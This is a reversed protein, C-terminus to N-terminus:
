PMKTKLLAIFKNVLTSLKDEENTDKEHLEHKEMFEKRYNDVVEKRGWGEGKWWTRLKGYEGIMENVYWPKAFKLSRDNIIKVLDTTNFTKKIVSTFYPEYDEPIDQDDRKRLYFERLVNSIRLENGTIKNKRARLTMAYYTFNAHLNSNEKLNHNVLILQM